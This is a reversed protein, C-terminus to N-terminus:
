PRDEPRPAAARALRDRIAAGIGDDPIPSVAIVAAGTADLARLGAYLGRAAEDLDRSPSLRVTRAEPAASPEDGFALWAEDPQVDAAAVDLRLRARPAYHSALLGPSTLPGPADRQPASDLPGIVAEIEAATIAGPRLIRPSGVTSVVTSEVGIPSPGGDIVLAVRPGLEEAVAGASTASLRGSRNASPAVIPGVRGAVSRFPETAPVRVALTDSGASALRSVAAGERRPAVITLPGPWFHEALRMADPGLDCVALIAALDAGHVILPNHSPRGKAAYIAAVAADSAARACLGYVTETPMAVLADAALLAAARDIAAPDDAALIPPAPADRM